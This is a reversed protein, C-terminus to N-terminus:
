SLNFRTKGKAFTFFKIDDVDRNREQALLSVTIFYVTLQYISLKTNSFQLTFRDIIEKVRKTESTYALIMEPIRLYCSQLVSLFVPDNEMVSKDAQEKLDILALDLFLLFSEYIESSYKTM